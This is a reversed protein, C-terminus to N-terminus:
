QRTTGTGTSAADMYIKTGDVKGTNEPPNTWSFKLDAASATSAFLLVILLAYKM